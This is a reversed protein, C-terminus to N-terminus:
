SFITNTIATRIQTQNRVNLTASDAAQVFETLRASVRRQVAIPPLWFPSAKLTEQSVNKAETGNASREVFSRYPESRLGQLLFGTDAEDENPVLQLTKDCLM